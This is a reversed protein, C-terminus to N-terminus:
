DVPPLMSNCSSSRPTWQVVLLAQEVTNEPSHQGAWATTGAQEGYRGRAGHQCAAATGALSATSRCCMTRRASLAGPECCRGSASSCSTLARWFGM